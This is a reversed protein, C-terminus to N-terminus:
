TSQEAEIHIHYPSPQPPCPQLYIISLQLDVRAHTKFRRDLNRTLKPLALTVASVLAKACM